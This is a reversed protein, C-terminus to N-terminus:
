ATAAPRRRGARAARRWGPVGGSCCQTSSGTVAHLKAQFRYNLRYGCANSGTVTHLRAQSRIYDLAGATGGDAWWSARGAMAVPLMAAEPAEISRQALSVLLGLTHMTHMHMHMSMQMHTRAYAPGLPARETQSVAGHVAGHICWTCLGCDLSARSLCQRFFFHRPRATLFLVSCYRGAAVGGQRLRERPWGVAGSAVWGM